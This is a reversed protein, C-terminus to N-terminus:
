GEIATVEYGAETVAARLVDDSIEKESKVVASKNELSVDAETVGDIAALADHVHKVCHMCMMGEIMVTKKMGNVGETKEVDDIINDEIEIDSITIESRGSESSAKEGSGSKPKFFRLRLANSVVFVSSFSMALAGLMPSLKIGFAPYLVGAAVPICIANYFLAWFLNEKINRMTAKGLEIARPVDEPDSKMLVIDASEIAIDTGAGIAIGADSRALAPADNIGDGVMAVKGGSQQLERVKADKDQPLVEAIVGDCGAQRQIAEATRKNDGTLMITKIGMRRLDSMTNEASPKITDAVAIM